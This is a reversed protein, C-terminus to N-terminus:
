AESAPIKAPKCPNEPLTLPVPFGLGEGIDETRFAGARLLFRIKPTKIVLIPNQAYAISQKCYPVGFHYQYNNLGRLQADNMFGGVEKRYCRGTVPTSAFIAQLLVDESQSEKQDM